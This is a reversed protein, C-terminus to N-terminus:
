TKCLTDMRTAHIRAMTFYAVYPIECASRLVKAIGACIYVYTVRSLVSPDDYLDRLAFFHRAIIIVDRHLAVARMERTQFTAFRPFCRECHSRCNKSLNTRTFAFKMRYQIWALCVLAFSRLRRAFSSYENFCNARVLNQDLKLRQPVIRIHLM